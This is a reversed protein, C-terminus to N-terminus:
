VCTRAQRHLVLDHEVSGHIGDGCSRIIRRHSCHSSTSLITVAVKASQLGRGVRAIGEQIPHINNTHGGRIFRFIFEKHCAVPCQPCIEKFTGIDAVERKVKSAIVVIPAAIIQFHMKPVSHAVQKTYQIALRSGGECKWKDVPTM